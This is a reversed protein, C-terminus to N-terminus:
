WIKVTLLEMKLCLQAIGYLQTGFRHDEEYTSETLSSEKVIHVCNDAAVTGPTMVVALNLKKRYEKMNNNRLKSREKEGM